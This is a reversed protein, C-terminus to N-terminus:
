FRWKVNDMILDELRAQRLLEFRPKMESV